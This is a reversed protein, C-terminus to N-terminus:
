KFCLKITCCFLITRSVVVLSGFFFIAKGKGGGVRVGVTWYMGSRKRSNIDGGINKGPIQTDLALIYSKNSATVFVSHGNRHLSFLFTYTRLLNYIFIVM